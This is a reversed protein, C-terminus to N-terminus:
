PNSAVPGTMAEGINKIREAREVAAHHHTRYGGPGVKWMAAVVFWDGHAENNYLSVMLRKAVKDAYAMNVAMSTFLGPAHVRDFSPRTLQFPGMDPGDREVFRISGTATYMSGTEVQLIGAPLWAPIDGLTAPPAQVSAFLTSSLVALLLLRLM